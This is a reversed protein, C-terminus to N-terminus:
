GLHPVADNWWSLMSLHITTQSQGRFSTAGRAGEEPPDSSPSRALGGLQDGTHLVLEKGRAYLEPDQEEVDERDPDSRKRKERPLPIHDEDMVEKEEKRRVEGDNDEVARDISENESSLIDMPQDDKSPDGGVQERPRRKGKKGKGKGKKKRGSEVSKGREKRVEERLGKGPSVEAGGRVEERAKENDSKSNAGKKGGDDEVDGKEKEKDKEKEKEKEKGEEEEKEKEKEIEKEKEKVPDETKDEGKKGHDKNKEVQTSKEGPGKVNGDVQLADAYSKKGRASCEEDGESHFHKRCRPCWPTDAIVVELEVLGDYGLDIALFKKYRLRAASELDFRVNLLDQNLKDKFVPYEKIIESGYADQIVGPLLPLVGIPVQQVRIWFFRFKSVERWEWLEYETMRPRFQVKHQTNDLKIEASEPHSKSHFTLMVAWSIGECLM